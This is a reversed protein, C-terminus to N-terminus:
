GNLDTGIAIPIQTGIENEELVVVIKTTEKDVITFDITKSKYNPHTVLLQHKGQKLNSFLNRGM